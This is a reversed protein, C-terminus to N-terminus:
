SRYVAQAPNSKDGITFFHKSLGRLKIHYEKLLAYSSSLNPNIKKWLKELDVKDKEKISFSAELYASDLYIWWTKLDNHQM